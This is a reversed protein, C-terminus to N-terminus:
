RDRFQHVVRQYSNRVGNYQGQTLRGYRMWKEHVNDLWQWYGENDSRPQQYITRFMLDITVKDRLHPANSPSLDEDQRTANRQITIRMGQPVDNFVDGWTLNERKLLANALSIAALVEPEKDSTTMAMIKALKAKDLPV